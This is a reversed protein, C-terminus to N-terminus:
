KKNQNYGGASYPYDALMLAKKQTDNLKAYSKDNIALLFEPCGHNTITLYKTVEYMKRDRMATTGSTQGDITGRQIGMYVEGSGMTVSSAGLAKITEASYKSYGRIKLGAFDEPSKIAM